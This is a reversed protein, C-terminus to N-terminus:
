ALVKALHTEGVCRTIGVGVTDRRRYKRPFVIMTNRKRVILSDMKFRSIVFCVLEDFSIEDAHIHRLV